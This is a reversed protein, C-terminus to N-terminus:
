HEPSLRLASPHSTKDEGDFLGEWWEGTMRKPVIIEERKTELIIPIRLSQEIGEADIVDTDFREQTEVLQHLLNVQLHEERIVPLHQHELEM